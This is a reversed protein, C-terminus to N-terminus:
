TANSIDKKFPTRAVLKLLARDYENLTRQRYAALLRVIDPNCTEKKELMLFHKVQYQRSILILKNTNVRGCGLANFWRRLIAENPLNKNSLEINSIDKPPVGIMKALKVITYGHNNRLIRLLDGFNPVEEPIDLEANTKYESDHTM